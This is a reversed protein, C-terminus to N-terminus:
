RSATLGSVDLMPLTAGAADVDGGVVWATLDGVYTAGAVGVGAAGAAVSCVGCLTPGAIHESCHVCVGDEPAGRLWVPM